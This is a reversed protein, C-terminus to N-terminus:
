HQSHTTAHPLGIGKCRTLGKTGHPKWGTGDCQQCIALAAANGGQQQPNFHTKDDSRGGNETQRRHDGNITMGHVKRM